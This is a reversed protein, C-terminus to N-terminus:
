VVEFRRPNPMIRAPVGMAVAGPPVDSVVVSNAGVRAGRGVRVGGLIKAGAGIFVDDEITPARDNRGGTGVVVDHMIGVRNGIKAEPHIRVNTGYIFHVEDGLSGYVETAFVLRLVRAVASQGGRLLLRGLGMPQTALRERIRTHVLILSGPEFFGGHRAADDWVSTRKKEKCNM